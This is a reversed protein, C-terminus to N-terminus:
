SFRLASSVLSKELWIYTHVIEQWRKITIFKIGFTLQTPILKHTSTFLCLNMIMLKHLVDKSYKRMNYSFHAFIQYPWTKENKWRKKFLCLYKIPIFMEAYSSFLISFPFSRLLSNKRKWRFLYRFLFFSIINSITFFTLRKIVLIRWVWGKYSTQPCHHHHHYCSPQSHLVRSAKFIYSM